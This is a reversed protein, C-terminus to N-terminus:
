QTSDNQDFEVCLIKEYNDISKINKLYPRNLDIDKTLFYKRIEEIKEETESINKKYIEYFSEALIRSRNQGFSDGTEPDEALSIGPALRKALLPTDARSFSKINRYLHSLAATAKEIDKKNLYLVGADARNFYNTDNLIKFQFPIKDTNLKTTLNNMLPTAGDSVINWYIRVISSHEELSINGNAMYFGPLLDRFEKVMSVYGKSGIEIHNGDLPLFQYPHLWINIGNKKVVLRENREIKYVEWGPEWTGIGTNANSLMEVFNRNDSYNHATFMQQQNGSQRCHFIQYLHNKLADLLANIQFNTENKLDLNDYKNKESFTFDYRQNGITFSKESKIKTTQVISDLESLYYENM